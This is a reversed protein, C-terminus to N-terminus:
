PSTAQGPMAGMGGAKPKLRIRLREAARRYRLAEDARGLRRYALSLGYVTEYSDPVLTDARSFRRVAEGARDLQLEM